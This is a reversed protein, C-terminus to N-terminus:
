LPVDHGETESLSQRCLEEAPCPPSLRAKIQSVASTNLTEPFSLCLLHGQGGLAAWHSTNQMVVLQM